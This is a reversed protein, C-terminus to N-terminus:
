RSVAWQEVGSEEPAPVMAEPIRLYDWGTVPDQQRTALAGDVSAKRVISVAEDLEYRGAEEIYRTYGYHNARWWMGHENSWILFHTM